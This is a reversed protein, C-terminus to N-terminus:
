YCKIHLQAKGNNQKTEKTKNPKKKKYHDPKNFDNYFLNEIEKNIPPKKEMQNNEPVIQREDRNEKKNKEKISEKASCYMGFIQDTYHIVKKRESFSWSEM